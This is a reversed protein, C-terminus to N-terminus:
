PPAPALPPLHDTHASTTLPAPDAPLLMHDVARPPRVGAAIAAFARIRHDDGVAIRLCACRLLDCGIDAAADREIEAPLPCLESRRPGADSMFIGALRM